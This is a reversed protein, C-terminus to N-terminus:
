RRPNIAGRPCGRAKKGERRKSPRGMADGKADDAEEAESRSGSQNSVAAPSRWVVVRREYPTTTTGKEEEGRREQQQLGKKEGPSDRARERSTIEAIDQGIIAKRERGGIIPAQPRLGCLLRSICTHITKKQRIRGEM